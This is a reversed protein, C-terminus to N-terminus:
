TQTNMTTALLVLLKRSLDKSVIVALKAITKKLFSLALRVTTALMVYIQQPKFELSLVTVVKPVTLATLKQELNLIPVSHELLALPQSLYVLLVGIVVQALFLTFQPVLVTIDSQALRVLQSAQNTKTLPPHVPSQM